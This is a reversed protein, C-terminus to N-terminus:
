FGHTLHSVHDPGSRNGPPPLVPYKLNIAPPLRRWPGSKGPSHATPTLTVQEPVRCSRGRDENRKWRAKICLSRLKLHSEPPYASVAKSTSSSPYPSSTIIPTQFSAQQQSLPLRPIPKEQRMCAEHPVVGSGASKLVVQKPHHFQPM